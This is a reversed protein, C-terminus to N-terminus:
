LLTLEHVTILGGTMVLAAKTRRRKSGPTALGTLAAVRAAAASAATSASAEPTPLSLGSSDAQGGGHHVRVLAAQPTTEHLWVRLSAHTALSLYGITAVLGWSTLFVPPPPVGSWHRWRVGPGEVWSGWFGLGLLLALAGARLAL